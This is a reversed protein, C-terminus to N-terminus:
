QWGYEIIFKIPEQSPVRGVRANRAVFRVRVEVGVREREVDFM